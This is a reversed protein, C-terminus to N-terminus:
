THGGQGRHTGTDGCHLGSRGGGESFDKTQTQKGRFQSCSLARLGVPRSLPQLRARRPSGAPLTGLAWEGGSSGALAADQLGRAGRPSSLCSRDRRPPGNPLISHVTGERSGM